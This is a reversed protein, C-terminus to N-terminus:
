LRFPLEVETALEPASTPTEVREARPAPASQEPAPAPQQAPRRPQVARAPEPVFHLDLRVYHAGFGPGGSGTATTRVPAVLRLGGGAGNM